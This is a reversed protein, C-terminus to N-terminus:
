GLIWYIRSWLSDFQIEDESPDENGCGHLEVCLSLLDKRALAEFTLLPPKTPTDLVKWWLVNVVTM